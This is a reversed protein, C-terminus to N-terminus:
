SSGPPYPLSVPPPFVTSKNVATTFLNPETYENLPDYRASEQVNFIFLSFVLTFQLDEMRVPVYQCCTQEINQSLIYKNLIIIM